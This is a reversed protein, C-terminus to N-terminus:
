WLNTASDSDKGPTQRHGKEAKADVEEGGEMSRPPYNAPVVVDTSQRLMIRIYCETDMSDLNKGTALALKWPQADLTYDPVASPLTHCTLLCSLEYGAFPQTSLGNCVVVSNHNHCCCSYATVDAITVHRMVERVDFSRVSIPQTDMDTTHPAHSVVMIGDCLQVQLYLDEVIADHIPPPPPMPPSLPVFHRPPPTVPVPPLPPPVPAVLAGREDPPLYHPPTPM